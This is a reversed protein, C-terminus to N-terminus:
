NRVKKHYKQDIDSIKEIHNESTRLLHIYHADIGMKDCCKVIDEIIKYLKM